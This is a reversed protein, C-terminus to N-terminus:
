DQLLPSSVTPIACSGLLGITSDDKKGSEPRIESITKNSPSLKPVSGDIILTKKLEFSAETIL